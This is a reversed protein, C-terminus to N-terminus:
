STKDVIFIVVQAVTLALIAFTFFVLVNTLWNTTKQQSVTSEQLVGIAEVLRRTAEVQAGQGQLGRPAAALEEWTLDARSTM